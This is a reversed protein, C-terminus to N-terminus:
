GVKIKKSSELSLDEGERKGASVSAENSLTHDGDPARAAEAVQVDELGEVRGRSSGKETQKAAKIQAQKELEESPMPARFYPQLLWHPIYAPRDPDNFENLSAHRVAGAEDSASNEPQLLSYSGKQLEEPPELYKPDKMDDELLKELKRIVVRYEKVRDEGTAHQDLRAPGLERRLDPHVALAPRTMKFLHSKCAPSSPPTKCAVIIDLYEHCMATVLPFQPTAKYIPLRSPGPEPHWAELDESKEAFIAPNYLNGEASMVGDAGTIRLADELDKPYLTNGNAFVPVKVAKKVAAIKKWDALGTKHGKMERTRGHVAIIQAGARELMRAYAVTKEVTPYVRMKATVPVKLELHLTNVLSFILHWDEM